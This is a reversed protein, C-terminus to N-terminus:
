ITPLFQRYADTEFPFAHSFFSPLVFSLRVIMVGSYRHGGLHSIKFVGVEKSGGGQKGGAVRRLLGEIEGEGGGLTELQESASLDHLASGKIDVTYDHMSLTSTIVEELMPAAIHCRKDRTKHSGTLPILALVPSTTLKGTATSTWGARLWPSLAFACLLIVAEYPLVWSKLRPGVSPDGLQGVTPSLTKDYLEQAGTKSIPISHVVKFDPFVM